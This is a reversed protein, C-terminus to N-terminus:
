PLTFTVSNSTGIRNVLNIGIAGRINPDMAFPLHLISASGNETDSIFWSDFMSRVDLTLLNGNAACGALAGCSLRAKSGEFRLLLQTVERPSSTLHVGVSFKNGDRAESQVSHIRPAQKPIAIQSSFTTEVTGTQLTGSFSLNGAITGAQFGIPGAALNDAIRAQVTNAPIAFTVARGGSSFQRAPDDSPHVADPTFGMTLTGSVDQPFAFPLTLNLAVQDGAVFPHPTFSANVVPVAIVTVDSATNNSSTIDGDTAVRPAHIVGSAAAAGAAVKLNITTLGGPPLSDPTVCTVIQQDSSCSWGNGQGSVYAVGAPLPDTVTIPSTTAALGKNSVAVIYDTEFGVGFNGVHSSTISLDPYPAVVTFATSGATGLSTTLNLNRVGLSANPAITFTATALIDNVVTVNSVTVDGGLDITLPSAFSTGNLTVEISTGPVGVSTSLSGLSPATLVFGIRRIRDNGNDAIFLNGASDLVLGTPFSLRASTALGGDGAFGALGTGAVTTIIGAPNVRRIRNNFSDAIYLNGAADVAVGGPGSLQASSAAGGDGSFGSVGTGAVTSIVGGPTIKRIRNNSMDAIYLNGASDLALGWPNRFQAATAPGGDGAFGYTGTGAFPTIQGNPAVKDIRNSFTNAVILNGGADVAVAGRAYYYYYDCFYWNYENTALTSQAGQPTLKYISFGCESFYVNDSADVAIVAVGNSGTAVTSVTGPRSIKRIRSHNTDAVYLSGSSDLALGMPSGFSALRANGGDGFNGNGAATSIVGAPTVKRIKFYVAAYGRDAIFLNGNADVDVWNPYSLQASTAPGGDGGSGLTGTGAVTSITGSANVKRIRSHQTDAIFINGSADAAVGNPYAIAAATAPGGDVAPGQTGNGAITQIVGDPTVRRIRSNGTDAILINGSADVTVSSPASLLAFVALQGDGLFGRQGVGAVTSIIGATVKRIRYNNTDAILLAGSVDVAVGEPYFLRAATAPGGDGVSQSPPFGMFGVGAVTSITGAPTVKRIRHNTSDAIFLNGSGDLALGKPTFLQASIAPGGDGSFGEIGTGAVIALTGDFFVRYVRHQKPGSSSFYFGGAHDSIVAEIGEFTESVAPAGDVPVHGGAYTTILQAFGSM